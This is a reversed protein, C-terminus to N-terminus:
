KLIHKKIGEVEHGATYCVKAEYLVKIKSLETYIGLQKFAWAEASMKQREECGQQAEVEKKKNIYGM